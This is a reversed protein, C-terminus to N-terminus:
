VNTYYKALFPSRKVEKAVIIYCIKVPTLSFKAAQCGTLTSMM